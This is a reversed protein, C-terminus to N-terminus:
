RPTVHGAQMSSASIQLSPGSGEGAGCTNPQPCSDAATTAPIDVEKSPGICRESSQRIGTKHNVCCLVTGLKGGLRAVPEKGDAALSHARSLKCCMEM